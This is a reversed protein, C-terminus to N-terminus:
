ARQKEKKEKRGELMREGEKESAFDKIIGKNRKENEIHNQSLVIKSLVIM